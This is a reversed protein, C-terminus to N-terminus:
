LTSLPEQIVMLPVAKIAPIEAAITPEKNELSAQTPTVKIAPSILFGFRLTPSLKNRPVKRTVM